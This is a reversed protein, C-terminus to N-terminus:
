FFTRQHTPQYEFWDFISDYEHGIALGLQFIMEEDTLQGGAENVANAKEEFRQIFKEIDGKPDYM